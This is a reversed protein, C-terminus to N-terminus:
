APLIAAPATSAKEVLGSRVPDAGIAFVIPITSTATKAALASITTGTFIVSAGRRVLEDALAPLRTMDREAFVYDITVNRGEEFGANELGQPLHRASLRRDRRLDPRSIRHCAAGAARTGRLPWAAAGGILTIFERRRM